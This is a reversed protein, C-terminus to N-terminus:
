PTVLKYCLFSCTVHTNSMHQVVHRCNAHMCDGSRLNALGDALEHAVAVFVGVEIAVCSQTDSTHMLKFSIVADFSQAYHVVSKIIVTESVNRVHKKM